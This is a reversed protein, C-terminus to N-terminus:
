GFHSDQESRMSNLLTRRLTLEATQVLAEDGVYCALEYQCVLGRVKHASAGTVRREVAVLLAADPRIEKM